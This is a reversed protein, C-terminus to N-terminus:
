PDIAALAVTQNDHGGGHEAMAVLVRCVMELDPDATLCRVITADDVLGTLGDTCLLLVDGAELAHRSAAVETAERVGIARTIVSRHPFKAIEDLTMAGADLLDSSLRDDRTLQTLTGNRFLYARSDGVHAISVSRDSLSAVTATTGMGRWSTETAPSGNAANWFERGAREVVDALSRATYEGGSHPRGGALHRAILAAVEHSASKRPGGGGTGDYVGLVASAASASVPEDDPLMLWESAHDWLSCADENVDRCKGTSTLAAIRLM